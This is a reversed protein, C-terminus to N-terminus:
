KESHKPYANKDMNHTWLTILDPHKLEDLRKKVFNFSNGIYNLMDKTIFILSISM